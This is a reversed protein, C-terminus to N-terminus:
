ETRLKSVQTQKALATQHTGLNSDAAKFLSTVLGAAASQPIYYQRWPVAIASIAITSAIAMHAPARRAKLNYADLWRM